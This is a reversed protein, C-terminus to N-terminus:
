LCYSDRKGVQTMFDWCRNKPNEKPFLLRQLTGEFFDALWQAWLWPFQFYFWFVYKKKGRLVETLCAHHRLRVPQGYITWNRWAELSVGHQRWSRTKIKRTQRKATEFELRAGQLGKRILKPDPTGWDLEAWELLSTVVCPKRPSGSDWHFYPSPFVMYSLGVCNRNARLNSLWGANCTITM